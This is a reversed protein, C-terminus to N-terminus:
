GGTGALFRGEFMNDWEPRINEYAVPITHRAKLSSRLTDALLISPCGAHLPRPIAKRMRSYISRFDEELINGFKVPLFVCPNVNGQSDIEFHSLGGMMCGMREPSETYAVYSITPHNRFRREENGAKFFHLLVDRDEPTLIQDNGNALYGGTPRPELLQVFGVGLSKLLDYYKWVDGSRIFEKTACVNVYTFIGAEHLLGLAKVAAAHAGPSGRLSDHRMPDVDDLGVAAALLGAKRLAIAREATMGRGSTHLHFDSLGADSSRLIELVGDFREMPEGGSLVIVNTGIDQLEKVVENWRSIPVIDETGISFREYCHKCHLECKRTIALFATDINRKMNTGAESVNLGGRAVMNDYARSPYHPQSLASFYCKGFRVNKKLGIRGAIALTGIIGSKRGGIRFLPFKKRNAAYRLCELLFKARHMALKLGRQFVAREVSSDGTM